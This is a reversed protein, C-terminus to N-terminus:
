KLERRINAIESSIDSIKRDLNESELGSIGEELRSIGEFVESIQPELDSIDKRTEESSIESVSILFGLRQAEYSLAQKRIELEKIHTDGDIFTKELRAATEEHERAISYNGHAIAAFVVILLVAFSCIVMGLSFSETPIEKPTIITELVKKLGTFM